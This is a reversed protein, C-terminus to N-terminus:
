DPFLPASPYALQGFEPDEKIPDFLRDKRLRQRLSAGAKGSLAHRLLSLARQRYYKRLEGARRAPPGDAQRRPLPEEIEEPVRPPFEIRERAGGGARAQWAAQDPNVNVLAVAQAFVQAARYCLEPTDPGHRIAADADAVAPKEDRRLVHALARGSYTDGNRPDTRIAADFETLAPGKAGSALYAWGRAAHMSAMGRPMELMAAHQALLLLPAPGAAATIDRALHAAAVRRELELARGYDEVAEVNRGLQSLAVALSRYATAPPRAQRALYSDLSAAAAEYSRLQLLAEGRWLYANTHDPNLQLAEDYAAVAQEYKRLLHLIRGRWAHLRALEATPTDPDSKAIATEYAHLADPLENRRLHFRARAEYLAVIAPADAIATDLEQRAQAYEKRREYVRALSLHVQYQKPRIARARLLDALGEDEHGQSILLLGRNAHLACRADKDNKGARQEAERFAEEAARPEELQANVFGLMLYPWVFEPRDARCADLATRAEAPRNLQVYSVALLYRAWFYKADVGLAQLFERSAGETDGQKYLDEGMLYHDLALTPTIAAAAQRAAAAQPEGAQAYYRAQRLYYAQTGTPIIPRAHELIRLATRAAPKQPPRLSQAEALVLLLEYCGQRMQEQESATLAAPINPSENGAPDTVHVLRLAKTAEASASDLHAQLEDGVSMSSHLLAQDRHDQFQQYLTQAQARARTIEVQHARDAAEKQLETQVRDRLRDLEQILDELATPESVAVGQAKTLQADAEQWSQKAMLEKARDLLQRVQGQAGAVRDREALRQEALQARSQYYVVGGVGLLLATLASVAILAAAAPRRRAWKLLREVNGTPRALIPQGRAFREVDDALAQASAYRKAPEKQLCKLCITELDRPVKANLRSPPVPEEHVVQMVTDLATAARFPPRGTLFEYLIAGLAYVDTCPGMLEPHGGAQEPAMYSPTGIIASSRTKWADDDLQKALGFDSVKLLCRELPVAPGDALLVNGPKLDRHIIGARHAAEIAHALTQTLTAALPPPLPKGHLRKDLSGGEMFELVCYPGGRYEDVEHIQVINPHRLHAIAAAENRFRALHEPGSHAETLLMKLAVLRDLSKQRAKYVVGMGGRGLLGLVEYGPVAVDALTQAARVVLKAQDAGRTAYPDAGEGLTHWEDDPVPVPYPPPGEKTVDAAKTRPQGGPQAPEVGSKKTLVDGAATPPAPAAPRDVAGPVVRSLTPATAPNDAPPFGLTAPAALPEPRAVPPAGVPAAAQGAPAAPLADKVAAVVYSPQDPPRVAPLEQATDAPHLATRQSDGLLAFHRRLPAALRPFRCVYEDLEPTEALAARFAIESYILDLLAEDGCGAAALRPLFSEVAPRQGRRWGAWLEARLVAALETGGVSSSV